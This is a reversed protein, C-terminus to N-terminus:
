WFSTLFGVGRGYYPIEQLVVRATALRPWFRLTQMLIGIANDGAFLRMDWNVAVWGASVGRSPLDKCPGEWAPGGWSVCYDGVFVLVGM